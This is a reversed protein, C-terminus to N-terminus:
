TQFYRSRLERKLLKGITNRPLADVFEIRRPAQFKGLRGKCFDRIDEASPDTGAGPVIVAMVEEGYEPDPRGIV